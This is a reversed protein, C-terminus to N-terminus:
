TIRLVAAGTTRSRKLALLAENAHELPYVSTTTRIPIQAALALLEVGDRRTANAVSRVSKEDYLHRGYDMAPIESMYIGALAVAGGREVTELARPVLAGAPAFIISANPKAPPTDLAGGVWDAGLRRAHERNAETRTFVYVECGLHRAVQIAIHASAGFGYLGLRQGPEVGSVRLARYGIIGACLLPAAQEDSFGDPIPYAFSEPVTTYEAYGGDVSWGTFSAEDCLNERGRSCFPCLGCAEHLWAIGVRDGVAFRGARDGLAKVTGVVQHGPIVGSRSMPLEGEVEHLDTRCVGCYSVQVLIDASAPTPEPVDAPTLPRQDVPKPDWLLMARM